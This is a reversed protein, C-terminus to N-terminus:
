LIYSLHEDRLLAVPSSYEVVVLYNLDPLFSHRLRSGLGPYPHFSFLHEQPLPVFLTPLKLGVFASLVDAVGVVVDTVGVVINFPAFIM